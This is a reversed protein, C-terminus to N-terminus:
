PQEKSSELDSGSMAAEIARRGEHLLELVTAIPLAAAPGSLALAAPAEGAVTIPIACGLHGPQLYGDLVVCDEQVTARAHALVAAGTEPVSPTRREWGYRRRSDALASLAERKPREILLRLAVSSLHLPFGVSLPVPEHGSQSRSFYILQDRWLTALAVDMGPARAALAAMAQRPRTLYRFQRLSNGGLALVGYDAAFGHYTPKRVYGADILTGLVRSVWSQHLGVRRAIETSTLPGQAEAVLRLVELGRTLAQAIPPEAASEVTHKRPMIPDYHTIRM